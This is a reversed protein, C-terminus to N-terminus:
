RTARKKNKKNNLRFKKGKGMSKVLEKGKEEIMKMKDKFEKVTKEIQEKIISQKKKRELETNKLRKYNILNRDKYSINQKVNMAKIYMKNKIEVSWKGRGEKVFNEGVFNYNHYKPKKYVYLMYELDILNECDEPL